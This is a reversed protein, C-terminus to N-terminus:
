VAWSFSSALVALAGLLSTDAATLEAGALLAVGILGLALGCVSIGTMQQRGSLWALVLIFLPETAVLLAALGSSVYQQAWHLAGHGVLFFLAGVLLGAAWNARTPRFGRALAWGMLVTGAISHRLCATVLPPVTEVSYRIALYTSGWIFYIAVFALVLKIREIRGQARGRSRSGVAIASGDRANEDDVRSGQLDSRSQCM